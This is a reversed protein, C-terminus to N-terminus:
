RTQDPLKSAGDQYGNGKFSKSNNDIYREPKSSASRNHSKHSRDTAAYPNDALRTQATSKSRQLRILNRDCRYDSPHNQQVAPETVRQNVRQSPSASGPHRGCDSRDMCGSLNIALTGSQTLSTRLARLPGATTNALPPLWADDPVRCVAPGIRKRM